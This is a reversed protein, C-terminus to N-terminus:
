NPEVIMWAIISDDLVNSSLITFSTGVVRASVL